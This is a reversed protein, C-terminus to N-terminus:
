QPANIYLPEGVRHLRSGITADGICKNLFFSELTEREEHIILSPSSFSAWVKFLSLSLTVCYRYSVFSLPNNKNNNNNNNNYREPPTHKGPRSVVVPFLFCGGRGDCGWLLCCTLLVFCIFVVVVVDVQSPSPSSSHGTFLSVPSPLLGLCQFSSSFFLHSLRSM